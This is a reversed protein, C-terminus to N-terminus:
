GATAMNEGQLGVPQVCCDGKCEVPGTRLHRLGRSSRFRREEPTRGRAKVRACDLHGFRNKAAESQVTWRVSGDADLMAYGAFIEDIRDGDIDMPRPQHATQLGGPNTVSWRLRGDRTYAWIRHYRDKALVTDAHAGKSGAYDKDLPITKWPEIVPIAPDPADTDKTDFHPFGPEAVCPWCMLFMIGLMELYFEKRM